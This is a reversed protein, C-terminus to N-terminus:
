AKVSSKKCVQCAQDVDQKALQPNQWLDINSNHCPACNEVHDRIRKRDRGELLVRGNGEVSVVRLTIRGVRLDMSDAKQRKLYVLDGAEFRKLKPKYDGARTHAYRLTVRHQAIALNQFVIPMEREFHKAREEVVRARTKPDDLDVVKSYVKRIATGVIRWRGFLLFYPSCGALSNQRSMRYGMAIWCLQVYWHHGNSKLVFKRLAKKVTQVMREALGDSQPYDRSTLRHDILLKTLLKAFEGQSEEGQDTLVEAPAGYRCLV